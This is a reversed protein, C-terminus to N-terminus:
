TDQDELGPRQHWEAISEDPYCDFMKDNSEKRLEVWSAKSAAMLHTHRPAVPLNTDIASAFPHILDSWRPEWVWLATGCIRCFLTENEAEDVVGGARCNSSPHQLWPNFGCDCSIPLACTQVGTM